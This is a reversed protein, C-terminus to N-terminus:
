ICIFSKFPENTADYDDANCASILSFVQVELQFGHWRSAKYIFSKFLTNSANGDNQNAAAAAGVDRCV